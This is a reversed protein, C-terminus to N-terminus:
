SWGPRVLPRWGTGAFVNFGTALAEAMVSVFNSPSPVFAFFRPHDLHMIQGFIDESIRVLLQEPEVGTESLVPERRRAM